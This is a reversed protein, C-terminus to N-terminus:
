RANRGNYTEGSGACAAALTRERYDTREWKLRYLASNRFARDMRDRDRGFWFALRSCLWLDQASQDAGAWGDQYLAAFRLSTNCARRILEEDDLSVCVPPHTVRAAEFALRAGFLEHHLEDIVSQRENIVRPAAALLKGTISLFRRDNYVEVLGIRRGVPPLTGLTLVRFGSGSPSIETYSDLRRVLALMAPDDRCHDFDWGVLGGSVGIGIGDYPLRDRPNGEYYAEGADRYTTWTAPDNSRAREGNIQYSVKTWNPDRWEYRWPCWIPREKLEGPIQIWLPPNPRPPRIPM